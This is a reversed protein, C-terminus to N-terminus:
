DVMSPVKALSHNVISYIYGVRKIPEGMCSWASLIDGASNTRDPMMTTATRQAPHAWEGVWMPVIAAFIVGKPGLTLRAVIFM